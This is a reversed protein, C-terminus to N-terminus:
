RNGQIPWSACLSLSSSLTGDVQPHGRRGSMEVWGHLVLLVGIDEGASFCVSWTDKQVQTVRGRLFAFGKRQDNVEMEGGWRRQKSVESVAASSDSSSDPFCWHPILPIKQKENGRLCDGRARKIKSAERHPSRPEQTKGNRFATWCYCGRMFLLLKNIPPPGTAMM